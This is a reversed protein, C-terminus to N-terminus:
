SRAASPSRTLRRDPQRHRLGPDADAAPRVLTGGDYMQMKKVLDPRAMFYGMRAGAMGFIKSFTRLVIVDKGAAALHAATNNPYADSWHIYAEDILVISGAPKNDVLWEIDAMPTMTGTPNNPNVVYYVGANPNAALMARVDHSYDAKLPVAKIPM